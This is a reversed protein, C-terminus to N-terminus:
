KLNRIKQELKELVFDVAKPINKEAKKRMKKLEEQINKISLDKEHDIKKKELAIKENKKKELFDRKKVLMNMSETKADAIIEDRKTYADKIINEAKDEIKKVQLSFEDLVETEEKNM